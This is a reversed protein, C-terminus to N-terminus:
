VVEPMWALVLVVVENLGTVVTALEVKSLLDSVSFDLMWVSDVSTSFSPKAPLRSATPLALTFPDM